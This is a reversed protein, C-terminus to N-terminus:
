LLCSHKHVVAARPEALCEWLRSLSLGANPQLIPSLRFTLALAPGEAPVVEQGPLRQHGNVADPLLQPLQNYSGAEQPRCRLSLPLLAEAPNGQIFENRTGAGM